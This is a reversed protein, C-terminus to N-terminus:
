DDRTTQLGDSGPRDTPCLEHDRLRPVTQAPAGAGSRPGPAHLGPRRPSAQAAKVVRKRSTRRNRCCGFYFDPRRKRRVATVVSWLAKPRTRRQHLIPMPTPTGKTIGPRGTESPKKPNSRKIVYATWRSRAGLGAAPELAPCSEAARQTTPALPPERWYPRSPSARYARVPRCELGAFSGAVPM